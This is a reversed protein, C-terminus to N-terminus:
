WMAIYIQTPMPDPLPKKSSSVLRNGNGVYRWRHETAYIRLAIENIFEIKPAHEFM